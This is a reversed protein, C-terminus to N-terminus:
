FDGRQEEFHTPKGLQRGGRLIWEAQRQMMEAVGMDPYGFLEVCRQANCLLGREGESGTFVAEKGLLNALRTAAYRVSVTEPGTVNLSPASEDALHLARLAAENAYRQWVCNFAPVGLPVREGRLIWQCLDFLIGYRLDIAYSLRFNLVKAGYHRAAYEFIRERGLCSVAYEGIPSPPVSEDCGGSEPRSFPYVNSTSFVVYRAGEFHRTVLAPVAVNMEWTECASQATGFKRGAMFVINAAKPLKAIQDADTLDASLTEINNRKLLRVANPDTFRSVAIVRRPKGSLAVARGAMVALTPGVKGGAGLIMLDGDLRAMDRVLAESPTSLAEDLQMENLMM